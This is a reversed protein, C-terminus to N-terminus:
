YTWAFYNLLKPMFYEFLGKLQYFARVFFLDSYAGNKVIKVVKGLVMEDMDVPGLERADYSIARNDGMFFVQGEPLQYFWVLSTGFWIKEVQSSHYFEGEASIYNEYFKKEYIVNNEPKGDSSSYWDKGGNTQKIYDEQVVEITPQGNVTPSDKKIILLHFSYYGDEGKTKIISIKDGGFAVVRKVFTEKNLNKPNNIIVIDGYTYSGDKDVLAYDQAESQISIDPNITPQMSRGTIKMFYFETCFWIYIAAVIVAIVFFCIYISKLCKQTLKDCREDEFYLYTKEEDFHFRM